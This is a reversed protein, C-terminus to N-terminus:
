NTLSIITVVTLATFSVIFGGVLIRGTPTTSPHMILERLFGTRKTRAAIRKESQRKKKLWEGVAEDSREIQKDLEDASRLAEMEVGFSKEKLNEGEVRKVGLDITVQEIRENQSSILSDFRENLRIIENDKERVIREMRRQLSDLSARYREGALRQQQLKSLANEAVLRQLAVERRARQFAEEDMVFDGPKIGM